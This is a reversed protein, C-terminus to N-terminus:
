IEVAISLPAISSAQECKDGVAKASLPNEKVSVPEFKLNFKIENSLM